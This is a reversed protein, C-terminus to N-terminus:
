CFDVGFDVVVVGGVEDGEARMFWLLGLTDEFVIVSSNETAM